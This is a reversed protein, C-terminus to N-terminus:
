EMMFNYFIGYEEELDMFACCHVDRSKTQYKENCFDSRLGRRFEGQVESIVYERKSRIRERCAKGVASFVSEERILINM